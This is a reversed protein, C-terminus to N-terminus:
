YVIVPTGLNVWGIVWAADSLPFNICGHTGGNGSIPDYHPLNTGPGFTNRWWADHLFYGYNALLMAYNIPTDKYYYPSTKPFPSKFIIHYQQSSICHIGPPTPLDPSGTTVLNSHVLKGHDYIRAAQESFSIVIVKTNTVGYHQMLSLDTQHPKNAPTKDNLNDLFAQINTLYMQIEDEVLQYDDTTKAAALRQVADTYGVGPDSYEYALPYTVGNYPDTVKHTNAQAVLAKLTALDHNAQAILLPVALAKRQQQITKLLTQYSQPSKTSALTQTDQTVQQAYRTDKGGYSTYTQVDTQFLQLQTNVQQPLLATAEANIQSSQADILASLAAFDQASAATRFRALDQTPWQEFDYGPVPQGSPPDITVSPSDAWFSDSSELACQLPQPGSAGAAGFAANQGKVQDRLAQIQQYVPKILQVSILADQVSTDLVFYDHTTQAAPLQTQFQQQKTRFTKAEVFGDKEVSGLATDLVTLDTTTQAKAQAPTWKEIATLQQYLQTYGSAAQQSHADSGDATSTAITQEKAEIPALLLPPVSLKTHADKLASDLRTKATRAQEQSSPACASLVTSLAFVVLVVAALLRANGRRLGGPRTRVGDFRRMM